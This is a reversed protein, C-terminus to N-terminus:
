RKQEKKAEHSGGVFENIPLNSPMKRDTEQMEGWADRMFSTLAWNQGSKQVANQGILRNLRSNINRIRLTVKWPKSRKTGRIPIRRALEKPLLGDSSADYLEQLLERDLVDRCVIDEVYARDFRFEHELGKVMYRLTSAIDALDKKLDSHVTNVRQIIYQYKGRKDWEERKRSSM